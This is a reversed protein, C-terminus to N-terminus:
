LLVTDGIKVNKNKETLPIILGSGKEDVVLLTDKLILRVTAKTKGKSSEKPQEPAPIVEEVKKELPIVGKDEWSTDFEGLPEVEEIIKKPM